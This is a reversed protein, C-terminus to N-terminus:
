PYDWWSSSSINTEDYGSVMRFGVRGTGSIGPNNTLVFFLGTDNFNFTTDEDRAGIPLRDQEVAYGTANGTILKDNYVGSYSNMQATIKGNLMNSGMVVRKLNNDDDFDAIVVLGDITLATDTAVDGLRVNNFQLDYGSPNGVSFNDISGITEMHIDVFLRATNEVMTFDTYGAQGVAEKMSKENMKSLKGMSVQPLMVFIMCFVLLIYYKKLRNIIQM